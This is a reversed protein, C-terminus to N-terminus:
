QLRWSEHREMIARPRGEDHEGDVEDITEDETREIFELTASSLTCLRDTLPTQMPTDNRGTIRPEDQWHM